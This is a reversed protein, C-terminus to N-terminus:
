KKAIPCKLNSFIVIVPIIITESFAVAVIVNGANYEYRLTPDKQDTIGVCEGYETSSTCGSLTLTLVTALAIKKMNKEEEDDDRKRRKKGGAGEVEEDVDVLPRDTYEFSQGTAMAERMRDLEREVLSKRGIHEHIKVPAAGLGEV